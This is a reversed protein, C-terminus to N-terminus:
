RRGAAGGSPAKLHRLFFGGGGAVGMVLGADVGREGGQLREAGGGGRGGDIPAVDARDLLDGVLEVCDDLEGRRGGSDFSARWGGFPLPRISAIISPTADSGRAEAFSAASTVTRSVPTLRAEM